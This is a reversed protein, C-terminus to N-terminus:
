AVYQRWKQLKRALDYSLLSGTPVNLNYKANIITVGAGAMVEIIKLVDHVIFGRDFIPLYIIRAPVLNRRDVNPYKLKVITICTSRGDSGTIFWIKHSIPV